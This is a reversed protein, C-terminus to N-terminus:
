SFKKDQVKSTSAVINLYNIYFSDQYTDLNLIVIPGTLTQHTAAIIQNKKSMNTLENFFIPFNVFAFTGFAIPMQDKKESLDTTYEIKGKFYITKGPAICVQM